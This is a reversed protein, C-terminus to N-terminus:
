VYNLKAALKVGNPNTIVKLRVFVDGLPQFEAWAFYYANPGVPGTWSNIKYSAATPLLYAGDADMPALQVDVEMVGPNANAMVLVSAGSPSGGGPRSALSASISAEGVAAAEFNVNSDNPTQIIGPTPPQGAAFSTGFLWVEDGPWLCAPIIPNLTLNGTGSTNYQPM